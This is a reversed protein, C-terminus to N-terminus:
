VDGFRKGRQASFSSQPINQYPSILHSYLGERCLLPPMQPAPYSPLCPLYLDPPQSPTHPPLIGINHSHTYRQVEDYREQPYCEQDESDGLLLALYLIAMVNANKWGM